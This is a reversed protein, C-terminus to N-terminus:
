PSVKTVLRAIYKNSDFYLKVIYSDNPLGQIDIIDKSRGALLLQGDISFVSYSFSESSTVNIIGCNPHPYIDVFSDLEEISVNDVVSLIVNNTTDVVCSEIICRYGFGNMGLSVSSIHLSDTSSGSYVGFDSLNSWGTGDNQQWQYIATTDTHKATFHAFGPVTYFTGSQPQTILTDSCGHYLHYVESSDLPRNWIGIDDLTGDFWYGFPLAAGIKLPNTTFDFEGYLPNNNPVGLHSTQNMANTVLSGNVYFKLNGADNYTVTILYNTDTYVISGASPMSVFQYVGNARFECALWTPASSTGALRLGFYRTGPDNGIQFIYDEGTTTITDTNIWISFTFGTDNSFTTTPILLNDNIGDFEYASNANGFRDATITAGSTYGHRGNGSEDNVNGNFPWWGILGNSPVYNPLTQGTAGTTLM